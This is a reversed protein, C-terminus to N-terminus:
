IVTCADDTPRMLVVSTASDLARELYEALTGPSVPLQESNDDDLGNDDTV